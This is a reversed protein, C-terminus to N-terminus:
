ELGIRLDWANTLRMPVGSSLIGQVHVRVGILSADNGLDFTHTENGAVAAFSFLRPSNIDIGLVQGGAFPYYLPKLQGWILGSTHGTVSLDLTLELSGGLIPRGGASGTLRLSGENAGIDRRLALARTGDDGKDTVVFVPISTTQSGFDIVLETEGPAIATVRGEDDVAAVGGAAMSFSLASDNPSVHRLSGDSYIARVAVQVSPSDLTLFVPDPFAQVSALGSLPNLTLVLEAGIALNKYRDFAFGFVPVAGVATPPIEVFVLFPQEDLLM